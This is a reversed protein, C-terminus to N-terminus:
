NYGDIIQVPLKDAHPSKHLEQIFTSMSGVAAAKHESKSALAQWAYMAAAGACAALIIPGARQVLPRSLMQM